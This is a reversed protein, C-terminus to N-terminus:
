FASRRKSIHMTHRAFCDSIPLIGGFLFHSAFDIVYYTRAVHASAIEWPIIERFHRLPSLCASIARILCFARPHFFGPLSFPQACSWSTILKLSLGFSNALEFTINRPYLHVFAFSRVVVGPYIKIMNSYNDSFSYPLFPRCDNERACRIAIVWQKHSSKRESIVCM